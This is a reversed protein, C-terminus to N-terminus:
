RKNYNEIRLKGGWMAAIEFAEADFKEGPKLGEYDRGNYTSPGLTMAFEVTTTDQELFRTRIGPGVRTVLEIAVRARCDNMGCPGGDENRGPVPGVLTGIFRIAGPPIDNISRQELSPTGPPLSETIPQKKACAVLAVALLVIFTCKV